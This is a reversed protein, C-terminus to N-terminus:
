AISTRNRGHQSAQYLAQAALILLQKAEIMESSFALGSSVIIHLQPAVETLSLAMIEQRLRGCVQNVQESATIM